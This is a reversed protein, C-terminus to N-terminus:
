MTSIDKNFYTDFFRYRYIYKERTISSYEPGIVRRELVREREARLMRASAGWYMPHDLHVYCDKLGCLGLLPEVIRQDRGWAREDIAGGDQVYQDQNERSLSEDITISLRSLSAHRALLKIGEAWDRAPQTDPQLWDDIDPIVFQLSQLYPLAELPLQRIFPPCKEEHYTGDGYPMAYFHNSSYFIRIAMRRYERSVLFLETPFRWCWCESSLAGKDQKSKAEYCPKHVAFCLECPNSAKQGRKWYSEIENPSRSRCILGREPIWQLDYPAFLDTHQLIKAQIEYPIHPLQSLSSSFRSRGTLHRTTSEALALLDPRSKTSFCISCASLLPLQIMANSIEQATKLDVVDCIVGLRLRSPQAFSRIHKCLNSWQRIIARDHRSVCGLLKPLNDGAWVVCKECDHFCGEYNNAQCPAKRENLSITLSTLSGLATAGLSFLGKLDGPSTRSIVVHNRAYLATCIDRYLTRCVLLLPLLPRSLCSWENYAKHGERCPWCRCIWTPRPKYGYKGDPKEVNLHIHGNRVLNLYFYIHSRINLPLDPLSPKVQIHPRSRNLFADLRTQKLM